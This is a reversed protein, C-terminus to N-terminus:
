LRTLAAILAAARAGPFPASLVERMVAIGHAGAAKLAAIDALRVGGLALLPLSTRRAIAAFGDIGLPPAKGAVAHVPSLTAYDAAQAAAQALGAEDHRSVGILATAGLRERASRPSTGAEPLHVGDAEIAKALDVRANVLLRVGRARTLARLTHGLVHLEPDRLARERLQVAVRDPPVEAIARAIRALLDPGEDSIIMLDFPPHM